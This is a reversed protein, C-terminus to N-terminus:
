GWGRVREGEGAGEGAGEGEGEGVRVGKLCGRHHRGHAEHHDHRPVFVVPLLLFFFVRRSRCPRVQRSAGGVLGHPLDVPASERAHERGLRVTAVRANKQQAQRLCKEFTMYIYIYIYLGTRYPVTRYPLVTRIYAHCLGTRCPVTRTRYPVTRYPLTRYPTYICGDSCSSEAYRVTCHRVTGHQVTYRATGYRAAKAGWL